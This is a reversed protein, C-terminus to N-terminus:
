VSDLWSRADQYVRKVSEPDDDGPLDDAMTLGRRSVHWYIFQYSKRKWGVAEIDSFDPVPSNGVPYIADRIYIPQTSLMYWHGDVKEMRTLLKSYAVLDYEHGDHAFRCSFQAISEALAYKGRRFEIDAPTIVHLMSIGPDALKESAAVFGDIDGTYWSIAVLTKSADPHYCARMKKWQCTDRAWRERHLLSKIEIEDM